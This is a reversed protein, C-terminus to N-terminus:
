GEAAPAAAEEAPKETSFHKAAGSLGKAAMGLAGDTAHSVDAVLTILKHAQKAADGEAHEKAHAVAAEAKELAAVYKTHLEEYHKAAGKVNEDTYGSNKFLTPKLAWVKGEIDKISAEVGETASDFGEGVRVSALKTLTEIGKAAQALQAEVDKLSGMVSADALKKLGYVTGAAALAVVAAIGANKGTVLGKKAAGQEKGVFKPEVNSPHKNIRRDEVPGNRAERRKAATASARAAKFSDRRVRMSRMLTEAREGLGELAALEESDIYAQLGAIIQEADAKRADDNMSELAAVPAAGLADTLAGDHNAFAMLAPSSGYTSLATVLLQAQRVTQTRAAVDAAMRSEDLLADAYAAADFVDALDDAGSAAQSQRLAVLNAFM